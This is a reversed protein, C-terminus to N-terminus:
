DRLIVTCVFATAERLGADRISEEGQVCPEESAANM